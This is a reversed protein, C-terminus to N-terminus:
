RKRKKSPRGVPAPETGGGRGGGRGRGTGGKKTFKGRGRIPRPSSPAISPERMEIDEDEVHDTGADTGTVVSSARLSSVGDEDGSEQTLASSDSDGGVLGAMNFKTKGRKKGTRPISPPSPIPSSPLSATARIRRESIMKEISEDLPLTFEERFFPHAALNQSPSPSPISVPSSKKTKPSEYGEAELDIAELADLNYCSKLKEWLDDISVLRNTDKFIANRIAIVHFHRHMGIPRARTISRFFSIEGDVSQLFSAADNKDGVM